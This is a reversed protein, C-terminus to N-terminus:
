SSFCFCFFVVMHCTVHSLHFTVCSVHWMVNTLHQVNLDRAQISIPHKASKSSFSQQSFWDILWHRIHLVARAVAPRGFIYSSTDIKYLFTNLITKYIRSIYTTWWFYGFCTEKWTRLLTQMTRKIHLAFYWSQIFTCFLNARCM